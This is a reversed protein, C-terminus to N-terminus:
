TEFPLAGASEKDFVYFTSLVPPMTALSTIPPASPPVCPGGRLHRGPPRAEANEKDFLYFTSLSVDFIEEEGLLLEHLQPIKAM